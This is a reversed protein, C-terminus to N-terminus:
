CVPCVVGFRALWVGFSGLVLAFSGSAFSDRVRVRVCVCLAHPRLLPYCFGSGRVLLRPLCGWVSGVLGLVFGVSGLVLAFSGSAFSRPM